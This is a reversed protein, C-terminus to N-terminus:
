LLDLCIGSDHWFKRYLKSENLFGLIFSFDTRDRSRKWPTETPIDMDQAHQQSRQIMIANTSHATGKGSTEEGFDINDWVLRTFTKWQIGSPLVTDGLAIHHKALATNHELLTPHAISHGLGNLIGILQTSGTLHRVATALATHKPM